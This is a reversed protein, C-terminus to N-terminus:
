VEAVTFIVDESKQSTVCLLYNGVDPLQRDTGGETTSCDAEAQGKFIPGIPEGSVDTDVLGRQMVYWFPQRDTGSETTSCDAEAQGKLIPVIPKGSVDTDVLGHQM